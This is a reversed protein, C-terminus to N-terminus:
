APPESEPGTNVGVINPLFTKISLTAIAVCWPSILLWFLNGPYLWQIDMTKRLPPPFGFPRGVVIVAIMGAVTILLALYYRAPLTKHLFYASSTVGCPGLIAFGGQHWIWATHWEGFRLWEVVCMALLVLFAGFSAGLGVIVSKILIRTHSNPKMPLSQIPITASYGAYRYRDHPRRSRSVVEIFEVRRSVHM